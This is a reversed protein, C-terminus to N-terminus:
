NSISRATCEYTSGAKKCVVDRLSIYTIGPSSYNHVAARQNLLVLFLGPASRRLNKFDSSIGACESRTSIEAGVKENVSFCELQPLNIERKSGELYEPFTQAIAEYVFSRGDFKWAPTSQRASATSLSLFSIIFTVFFAVNKM